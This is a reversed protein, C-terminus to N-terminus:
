VEWMFCFSKRVPKRKGKPVVEFVVNSGNSQYDVGSLLPVDHISVEYGKTTLNSHGSTFLERVSNKSLQVDTAYTFEVKRYELQLSKIKQNIFEALEM